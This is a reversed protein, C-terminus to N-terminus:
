LGLKSKGPATNKHHMLDPSSFQLLTEEELVKTFGGCQKPVPGNGFSYFESASIEFYLRLEKLVMNFQKKMDFEKDKKLPSAPGCGNHPPGVASTSNTHQEPCRIPTTTLNPMDNCSCDSSLNTTNEIHCKSREMDEGEEEEPAVEHQNTSEAELIAHYHRRTHLSSNSGSYDREDDDELSLQIRQFTDFGTPVRDGFTFVSPEPFLTDSCNLAPAITITCYSPNGEEPEPVVAEWHTPPTSDLVKSSDSINRESCESFCDPTVQIMAAQKQNGQQPGDKTIVVMECGVSAEDEKEFNTSGDIKLAQFDSGQFVTVDFLLPPMKMQSVTLSPSLEAGATCQSSHGQAAERDTESWIAPDIVSFPSVDNDGEASEQSIRASVPTEATHDATERRAKAIMEGATREGKAGSFVDAEPNVNENVINRSSVVDNDVTSGEARKAECHIADKNLSNENAQGKTESVAVEENECIQLDFKKEEIKEGQDLKGSHKEVANPHFSTTQSYDSWFTTASDYEKKQICPGAKASQSWVHCFVRDNQTCGQHCRLEEDGSTPSFGGIQDVSCEAKAGEDRNGDLLNCGVPPEDELSELLLKCDPHSSTDPAADPVIRFKAVEGGADDLSYSGLKACETEEPQEDQVLLFACGDVSVLARPSGTDENEPLSSRLYTISTARIETDGREHPKEHGSYWCESTGLLDANKKVFINNKQFAASINFRFKEKYNKIWETRPRKTSFPSVSEEKVLDQVNELIVKEMM